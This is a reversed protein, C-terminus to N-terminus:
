NLHRFPREAPPRMSRRSLFYSSGAGSGRWTICRNAGTLTSRRASSRKAGLTLWAASGLVPKKGYRVFSHMRYQNAHNRTDAQSAGHDGTQRLWSFRAKSPSVSAASRSFWNRRRALAWLVTGANRADPHGSEIWDALEEGYHWGVAQTLWRTHKSEGPERLLEAKLLEFAEWHRISALVIAADM